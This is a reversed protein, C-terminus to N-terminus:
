DLYPSEWRGAFAMDELPRRNREGLEREQLEAPLRAPDGPAGVAIMAMPTFRDPIGFTAALRAGDFGGMQHAHLGLAVAQLVLSMSAAGTDYQAWRNSRDRERFRTDALAAFLLPADRAM